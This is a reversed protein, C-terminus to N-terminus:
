DFAERQSSQRINHIKRTKSSFQIRLPVECMIFIIVIKILFKRLNKVELISEGSNMVAPLLYVLWHVTVIINIRKCLVAM